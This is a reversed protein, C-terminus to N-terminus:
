AIGGNEVFNVSKLKLEPVCAQQPASKPKRLYKEIFQWKTNM